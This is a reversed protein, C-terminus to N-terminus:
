RRSPQVWTGHSFLRRMMAWSDLPASAPPVSFPLAYMRRLISGSSPLQLSLADTNESKLLSTPSSPHRCVLSAEDFFMMALHRQHEPIADRRKAAAYYQGVLFLFFLRTGEKDLQDASKIIVVKRDEIWRSVDITNRPASFMKYFTPDDLASTVKWTLADKTEGFNGTYWLNEFFVRHITDLRRIPEAFKSQSAKKVQETIIEHLTVLTAGEINKLLAFLPKICTEQKPSLGGALSSMIFRFTELAARDSLVGRDLINLDPPNTTLDIAVLREPPVRPLAKAYLDGHPDCLIVARPEPDELAERFFLGTLESKGWESPALLVAHTPWRDRPIAFPVQVCFFDQFPTGHLFDTPDGDYEMPSLLKKTSPKEPDIGSLHFSTRGMKDLLNPFTLQDGFKSHSALYRITQVVEKYDKVLTHLPVTMSPKSATETSTNSAKLPEFKPLVDKFIRFVDVIANTAVNVREESLEAQRRTLFDRSELFVPDIAYIGESRFLTDLLDAFAPALYHNEFLVETVAENWEKCKELTNLLYEAHLKKLYEVHDKVQYFPRKLFDSPRMM